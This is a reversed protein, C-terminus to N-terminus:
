VAFSFGRLSNGSGPLSGKVSGISFSNALTKYKKRTKIPGFQKLQPSAAQSFTYGLVALLLVPLFIFILGWEILIIEGGVPEGSIM